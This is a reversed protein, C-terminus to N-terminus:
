DGPVAKDEGGEDGESLPEPGAQILRAYDDENLSHIECPLDELYTATAVVECYARNARWIAMALREIFEEETEGGGLFSEGYASLKENTDTWDDFSWQSGAAVKIQDIAESRFGSVEVSMGYFRTM